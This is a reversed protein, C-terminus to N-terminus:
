VTEVPEGELLLVRSRSTGRLLSLVGGSDLVGCGPRLSDTERLCGNPLCLVVLYKTNTEVRKQRRVFKTKLWKQSVHGLPRQHLCLPLLTVRYALVGLGLLTLKM